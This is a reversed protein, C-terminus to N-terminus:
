PRVHSTPARSANLSILLSRLGCPRCLESFGNVRVKMGFLVVATGVFNGSDMRPNFHQRQRSM